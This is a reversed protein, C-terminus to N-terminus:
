DEKLSRGGPAAPEANDIDSNGVRKTQDSPGVGTATGTADPVDPPENQVRDGSPMWSIGEMSLRRDELNYPLPIEKM